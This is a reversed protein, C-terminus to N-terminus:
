KEVVAESDFVMPDHTRARPLRRAFPFPFRRHWLIGSIYGVGTLAHELRKKGVAPELVEHLDGGVHESVGHEDGVRGVSVGGAGPELEFFAVFRRKSLHRAALEGIVVRDEVLADAVDDLRADVLLKRAGAPRDQAMVGDVPEVGQSLRDHDVADAEPAHHRDGSVSCERFIVPEDERAQRGEKALLELFAGKKRAPVGCRARVEEGTQEVVLLGVRDRARPAHLEHPKAREAAEEDDARVADAGREVGPGGVAHLGLECRQEDVAQCRKVVVLEDGHHAAAVGDPERLRVLRDEHAHGRRVVQAEAHAVREGLHGIHAGVEVLRAGGHAQARGVRLDELVGVDVAVALVGVHFHEVDAVVM